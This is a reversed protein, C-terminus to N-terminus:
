QAIATLCTEVSFPVNGEALGVGSHPFSREGAIDGQQDLVCAQHKESGWDIGVFWAFREEKM